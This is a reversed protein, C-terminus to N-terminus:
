WRAREEMATWFRKLDRPVAGQWRATRRPFVRWWRSLLVRQRRCFAERV